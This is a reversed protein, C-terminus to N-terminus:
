AVPWRHERHLAYTGLVSAWDLLRPDPNQYLEHLEAELREDALNGTSALSYLATNQGGHLQAAIARATADHVERDEARAAEIGLQIAREDGSEPLPPVVTQEYEGGPSQQEM